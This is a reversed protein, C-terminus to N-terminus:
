GKSRIETMTHCSTLTVGVHFAEEFSEAKQDETKKENNGADIGREIMKGVRHHLIRQRNVGRLAGDDERILAIQVRALAVNLRTGDRRRDEKV